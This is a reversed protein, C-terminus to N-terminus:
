SKGSITVGLLYEEVGGLSILYQWATPLIIAAYSHIGIILVHSACAPRVNTITVM